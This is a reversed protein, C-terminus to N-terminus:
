PINDPFSPVSALGVSCELWRCFVQAEDRSSLGAEHCSAGGTEPPTGERSGACTAGGDEDHADRTEAPTGEKREVYLGHRAGDLKRAAAANRRKAAAPKQPPEEAATDPDQSTATGEGDTTADGGTICPGLATTNETNSQNYFAWCGSASRCAFYQSPM